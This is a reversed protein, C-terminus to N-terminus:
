LIKSYNIAGTLFILFINQLEKLKLQIMGLVEYYISVVSMLGILFIDTLYATTHMCECKYCIYGMNPQDTGYLNGIFNEFHDLKVKGEGKLIFLLFMIYRMM